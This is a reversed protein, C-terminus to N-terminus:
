SVIISPGAFDRDWAIHDIDYVGVLETPMTKGTPCDFPQNGFEVTARGPAHARMRGLHQGRLNGSPWDQTSETAPQISSFVDFLGSGSVTASSDLDFVFTCQKGETWAPFDFTVLTTKDPERGDKFILGQQTDFDVAGTWINYQSIVTPYITSTERAILPAALATTAGLIAALLASTFAKM